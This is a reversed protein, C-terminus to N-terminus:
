FIKDQSDKYIRRDMKEKKIKTSPRHTLLEEERAITHYKFHMDHDFVGRAMSQKLATSAVHRLLGINGMRVKDKKWSFKVVFGQSHPNQYLEVGDKKFRPKYYRPTFKSIGAEGLGLPFKIWGGEETMYKVMLSNFISMAEAYQPYTVDEVQCDGENNTQWYAYIDKLDSHKRNNGDSFQNNHRPLSIDAKM